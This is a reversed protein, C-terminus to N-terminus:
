GRSAPSRMPWGTAHGARWALLSTLAAATTDAVETTQGDSRAIIVSRGTRGATLIPGPSRWPRRSLRCALTAEAPSGPAQVLGRAGSDPGAMVELADKLVAEAGAPRGHALLEGARGAAPHAIRRLVRRLEAPEVLTAFLVLAAEIEAYHAPQVSPKV